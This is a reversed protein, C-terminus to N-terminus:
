SRPRHFSVQLFRLAAVIEDVRGQSLSGIYEGLRSKYLASVQSAVVASQKPLGGEGPDLLVVGPESIRHLNSSLACVVVTSIRSHNFVDDQIVVHPHPVGPMSGRSEDAAIWFIDGRNIVRDTPSAAAERDM